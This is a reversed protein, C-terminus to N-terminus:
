EWVVRVTWEEAMVQQTSTQLIGPGANTDATILEAAYNVPYSSGDWQASIQRDEDGVYGQLQDYLSQYQAPVKPTAPQTAKPSPVSPTPSASSKPYSETPSQSAPLRNEPATQTNTPSASPPESAGKSCGALLVSFLALAVLSSMLKKKTMDIARIVYDSFISELSVMAFFQLAPMAQRYVNLSIYFPLIRVFCGRM